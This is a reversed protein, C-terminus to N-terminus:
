ISSRENFRREQREPCTTLPVLCVRDRVPGGTSISLGLVRVNEVRVKEAKV